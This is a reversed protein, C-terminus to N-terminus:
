ISSSVSSVYTPMPIQPLLPWQTLTPLSPYTPVQQLLWTNNSYPLSLYFLKQLLKPQIITVTGDPNHALSLGLFSSADRDLTVEYHKGVNTIVQDINTLSNNFIFTDDVYVIIYTTETPTTRYFLCKDFQSM